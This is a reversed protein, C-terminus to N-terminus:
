IIRRYILVLRSYIANGRNRNGADILINAPGGEAEEKIVAETM